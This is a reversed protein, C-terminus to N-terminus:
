SSPPERASALNSIERNVLYKVVRVIDRSRSLKIAETTAPTLWLETEEVFLFSVIAAVVVVALFRRRRRDRLCADVLVSGSAVATSSASARMIEFTTLRSPCLFLRNLRFGLSVSHSFTRRAKTEFTARRM